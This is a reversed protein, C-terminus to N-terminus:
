HGLPFIITPLVIDADLLAFCFVAQNTTIWHMVVNDEIQCAQLIRIRSMKNVFLKFNLVINPAFVNQPHLIVDEAVKIDLLQCVDELLPGAEQFVHIKQEFIM